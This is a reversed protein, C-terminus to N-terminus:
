SPTFTRMTLPTQEAALRLLILLANQGSTLLLETEGSTQRYVKFTQYTGITSNPTELAETERSRVLHEVLLEAESALIHVILNFFQKGLPLLSLQRLKRDRLSRM